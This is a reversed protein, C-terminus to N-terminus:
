YNTLLGHSGGRKEHSQLFTHEIDISLRDNIFIHKVIDKYNHIVLQLNDMTEQLQIFNIKEKEDYQLFKLRNNRSYIIKNNYKNPLGLFSKDLIINYFFMSYTLKVIMKDDNTFTMNVLNEEDKILVEIKLIGKHLITMQKVGNHAVSEKLKFIYKGSLNKIDSLKEYRENLLKVNDNDSISKKLHDQALLLEDELLKTKKDLEIKMTKHQTNETEANNLQTQLQAESDIFTSISALRDDYSKKLELFRLTAIKGTGSTQLIQSREKTRMFTNFWNLGFRVGPFLFAIVLPCLYNRCVNANNNILEKYNKYGYLHITKSDYWLLGVVIEWNWFIWAICFSLIIPQSLRSLFPKLVDM